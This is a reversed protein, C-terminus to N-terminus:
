LSYFVPTVFPLGVMASNETLMWRIGLEVRAHLVVLTTRVSTNVDMLSVLANM